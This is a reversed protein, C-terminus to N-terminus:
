ENVDRKEMRTVFEKGEAVWEELTMHGLRCVYVSATDYRGKARDDYIFYWYGKGGVLQLKDSGIAKLVHKVSKVKTKM